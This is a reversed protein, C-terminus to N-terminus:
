HNQEEASFDPYQRKGKVKSDTIGEFRDFGAIRGRTKIDYMPMVHKRGYTPKQQFEPKEGYAM